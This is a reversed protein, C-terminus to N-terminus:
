DSESDDFTTKNPFETITISHTGTEITVSLNQIEEFTYPKADTEYELEYESKTTISGNQLPVVGRKIEGVTATGNAITTNGDHVEISVPETHNVLTFQIYIEATRDGRLQPLVTRVERANEISTIELASTWKPRQVQETDSQQLSFTFQKTEDTNPYQIQTDAYLLLHPSNAYVYAVGSGNKVAKYVDVPKDNYTKEGVQRFKTEEILLTEGDTDIDPFQGPLLPMLESTNASNSSIYGNVFATETDTQYRAETISLAEDPEPVFREETTYYFQIRGNPVTEYYQKETWEDTMGAKQKTTSLRENHYEGHTVTEDGFRATKTITYEIKNNDYITAMRQYTPYDTNEYDTAGDYGFVKDDVSAEVTPIFVYASITIILTLILIATVWTRKTKDQFLQSFDM